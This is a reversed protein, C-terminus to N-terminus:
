GPGPSAAPAGRRGLALALFFAAGLVVVITAGAALDLHFAVLLGLLSALVAIAVSLSAIRALRRSLLHATAAPLIVFASVLVVGVSRLGAVVVLAVLAMLAYEVLAV